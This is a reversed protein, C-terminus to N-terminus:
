EDALWGCQGGSFKKGQVPTTTSKVTKHQSIMGSRDVIARQPDRERKSVNGWMVHRSGWMRIGVVACRIGRSRQMCAGVLNGQLHNESGLSTNLSVLGLLCM